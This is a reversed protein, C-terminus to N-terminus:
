EWTYGSRVPSNMRNGDPRHCWLSGATWSPRSTRATMNPRHSHIHGVLHRDRNTQYTNRWRVVQVRVKWVVRCSPRVQASRQLFSQPHCRLDATSADSERTSPVLEPGPPGGTWRRVALRRPHEGWGPVSLCPHLVCVRYMVGPFARGVSLRQGGFPVVDSTIYIYIDISISIHTCLLRCILLITEVKRARFLPV